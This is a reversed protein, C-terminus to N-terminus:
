SSAVQRRHNHRAIVLGTGLGALLVVIGLTAAAGIGADGWDFAGHEVVEVEVQAPQSAWQTRFGEAMRESALRAESPTLYCSSPKVAYSCVGATWAEVQSPSLGQGELFGLATAVSEPKPSDNTAQAGPTVIAATALVVALRKMHKRFM